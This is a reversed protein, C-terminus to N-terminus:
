VDTSTIGISQSYALRAQQDPRLALAALFDQYLEQTSWVYTQEVVDASVERTRQSIFGPQQSVWLRQAELQDRTETSQQSWWSTGPPKVSRYTLTYSM